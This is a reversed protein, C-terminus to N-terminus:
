NRANYLLNNYGSLSLMISLGHYKFWKLVVQDDTIWCIGSADAAACPLKAMVQAFIPRHDPSVPSIPIEFRGSQAECVLLKSKTIQQKKNWLSESDKAWIGPIFSIFSYELVNQGPRTGVPTDRKLAM